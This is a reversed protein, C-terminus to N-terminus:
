KLIGYKLNVVVRVKKMLSTSENSGYNDGEAADRATISFFGQQASILAGLETGADSAFQVGARRADQTAETLMEPKLKNLESFTFKPQVGEELVVGEKVIEDIRQSALILQDVNVSYITIGAQVHFRFEPKQGGYNSAFRDSLQIPILEIENDQFLQKAAFSKLKSRQEEAIKIVNQASNDAVAFRLKWTGLNAKVNREAVGKVDITRVPLRSKVMSSGLFFLGGGLSVFILFGLVFLSADVSKSEQAHPNM